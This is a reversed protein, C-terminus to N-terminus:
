QNMSALFEENSKTKSLRELLFEMAEVASMETLVKRLLWVRHLVKPPLLLEEKRTGSRLLDIAPFIRRDALKRDLNIESNGTGKFEEFIVDDMRSGTEILATAIITLSGGEEINRAAGFFRKPRQLANSDIGGSLVKGSSPCVTNYARALRTISDLLIVVDRGYEVMRKAKEIVMEAVQVHREAPEDFTSSVVEGKVNREMDTVEEPREDILLVILYIEPHNATIANAIKQLIVTKGTRPPAVILARQGKGLPILLDLVRTTLEKPTTELRIREQPYLPTLNEFITKDRAAEPPEDNIKEVKLLAFYRENDKPPRIEGVVYDGKRLNFRRIQSPSVYIDDPGPLYNYTQSRLFGFGDQLIELVGEGRLTETENQKEEQSKQQTAQLIKMILDQKRLNSYGEVNLEKAMKTLEPVTLKRLAEIDV